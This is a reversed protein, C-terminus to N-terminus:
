QREAVILYHSQPLRKSNRMCIEEKLVRPSRKSAGEQQGYVHRYGFIGEQIKRISGLFISFLKRELFDTKDEFSTPLFPTTLCHPTTVPDGLNHQPLTAITAAGNTQALKLLVTQFNFPM